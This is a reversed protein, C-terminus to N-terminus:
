VVAGELLLLDVSMHTFIGLVVYSEIISSVGCVREIDSLM